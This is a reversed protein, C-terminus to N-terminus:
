YVSRTSIFYTNIHQTLVSQENSICIAFLQGDKLPKDYCHALNVVVSCFLIRLCYFLCLRFPESSPTDYDTFGTKQAKDM